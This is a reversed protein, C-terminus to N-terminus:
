FRVMLLYWPGTKFSVDVVRVEGPVIKSPDKQEYVATKGLKKGKFIKEVGRALKENQTVGYFGKLGSRKMESALHIFSVLGVPSSKGVKFVKVHCECVKEGLNFFGRFYTPNKVRWIDADILYSGVGIKFGVLKKTNWKYIKQIKSKSDVVPEVVSKKRLKKRLSVSEEKLVAFPYKLKDVASAFKHGWGIRM